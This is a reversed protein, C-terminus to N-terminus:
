IKQQQKIRIIELLNNFTLINEVEEDLIEIEYKLEILQIIEIKHIIDIEKEM